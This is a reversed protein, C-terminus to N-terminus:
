ESVSFSEDEIHDLARQIVVEADQEGLFAGSRAPCDRTANLSEKEARSRCPRAPARALGVELREAERQPRTGAFRRGM